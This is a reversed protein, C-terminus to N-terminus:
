ARRPTLLAWIIFLNLAILVISWVPYYPIFVFNAITILSALVVGTIRAWLMDRLLAVGAAAILVGLILHIWGWGVASMDYVYHPAVVFWSGRIIAALGEFFAWVGSVMMLVSAMVTFGLAMGQPGTEQYSAEYPQAQRPVQQRATAGQGMTGGQQGMTGAQGAGSPPTGVTAGAGTAGPRVAGAGAPSNGGDRPPQDPASTM